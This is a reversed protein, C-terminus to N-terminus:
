LRDEQYIRVYDIELRAPMAAADVGKIGGWQGGIALNLILYMPRDFAIGLDMPSVVMAARDDVGIRIWDRTWHLQYRHFQTCADSVMSQATPHDGTRFNRAATQISHHIIGPEAGVHEAIDIEGGQWRGTEQVPLLWLAPWAGRVCPMRARVEFYGQTWSQHGRTILRGSSYAQGGWDPYDSRDLREAHAEVLLRGDEIRVNRARHRAYYQEEGNYWGQRNRHSDYSWNRVDPAAGQDFEDSWVLRYGAPLALSSPPPGPVAPRGAPICGTLALIGSLLGIQIIRGTAM